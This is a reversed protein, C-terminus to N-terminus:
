PQSECISGLLDTCLYSIYHDSGVGLKRVHLSFGITELVDLAHFCLTQVMNPLVLKDNVCVAELGFLVLSGLYVEKV